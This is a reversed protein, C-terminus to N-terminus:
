KRQAEINYVDVLGLLPQEAVRDKKDSFRFAKSFGTDRFFVTIQNFFHWLRTMQCGGRRVHYPISVYLIVFENIIVNKFSYDFIFSSVFIIVFRFDKIAVNAKTKISKAQM